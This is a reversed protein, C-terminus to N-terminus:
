YPAACYEPYHQFMFSWQDPNLEYNDPNQPDAPAGDLKKM